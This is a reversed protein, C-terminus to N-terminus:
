QVQFVSGGILAVFHGDRWLVTGLASGLLTATSYPPASIYRQGNAIYVVEGNAGLSELSTILSSGVPTVQQLTGTPSYSWLQRQDNPLDMYAIWGNNVQYDTRPYPQITRSTGLAVEGTTMSWMTLQYTQNICCPTSKRYVVHTGDTIVYSNWLNTDHTVQVPTGQHPIFVVQYHSNWYAVDGAPSIDNFINAADSAVTTNMGAILDRLILSGWGTGSMWSAYNGKVVLADLGSGPPLGLDTTTGNRYEHISLPIGVVPTEIYMVGTPTLYASPVRTNSQNLITVDPGNAGHLTLIDQGGLIGGPTGGVTDVFLVQSGAVDRILGVVSTLLTMNQTLAVSISLPTSVVQGAADKAQIVLLVTQGIYAALSVTADISSSGSALVANGVSATIQVCGTADPDSCLAQIRISPSAVAYSLPSVVTLQPPDDHQFSVSRTISTGHVDTGTVVLQTPGFPVNALTLRGTWQQQAQVYTLTIQQTGVTATVTSLPYESTVVAIVQLTDGVLANMTPMVVSVSGNINSPTNVATASFDVSPLGSATATAVQTGLSLGLTWHTSVYGQANSSGSAPTVSGSNTAAAWQVTIHPIPNGYRDAVRALLSDPLAAGPAASQGSGSVASIQAAGPVPQAQFTGIVTASATTDAGLRAQVRQSDAVSTGLTWQTAAIGSADTIATPISVTGGGATVIFTVAQGSIPTGDTGTIRVGLPSSLQIGVPGTQHDGMVITAGAPATTSTTDSCSTVLCLLSVLVCSTTQQRHFM